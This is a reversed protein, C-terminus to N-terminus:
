LRVLGLGFIMAVIAGLLSSWLAWLKYFSLSPHLRKYLAALLWGGGFTGLMWAGGVLLWWMWASGV